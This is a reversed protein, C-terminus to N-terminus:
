VELAIILFVFPWGCHLESVACHVPDSYRALHHALAAIQALHILQEVLHKSGALEQKSDVLAVRCAKGVSPALSSCCVLPNGLKRDQRSLVLRHRSCVLRLRFPLGKIVALVALALSGLPVLSSHCELPPPRISSPPRALGLGLLRLRAQPLLCTRQCPEALPPPQRLLPPRAQPLQCAQCGLHTQHQAAAQREQQPLAWLVGALIQPALDLHIQAQQSLLLQAQQLAAPLQQPPALRTLALLILALAQPQHLLPMELHTLALHMQHWLLKLM